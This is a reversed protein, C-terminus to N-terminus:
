YHIFIRKKKNKKKKKLNKNKKKKKKKKLIKVKKIKNKKFFFLYKFLKIIYLLRLLLPFYFIILSNLFSIIRIFTYFITFFYTFISLLM